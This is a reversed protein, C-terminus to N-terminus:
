SKQSPNILRQSLLRRLPIDYVKDVIWAGVILIVLFVIGSWPAFSELAIKNKRAISDILFFIPLHAVYVTYSIAGLFKFVRKAVGDVEVHIALYILCPFVLVACMFDYFPIMKDPTPFVLAIGILGVIIWSFFTNGKGYSIPFKGSTYLRYLLVGAFFSYGSRLLGIGLTKTTFGINLNHGPLFYLCMAMGIASPIMILVLVWNKMVRIAFAYFVNTLLEALLSWAPSNLPYIFAPRVIFPNPIFFAATAMLWISDHISYDEGVGCMISLFSVLMGAIYLPYLRILRMIFFTKLTLRSDLLRKEYSNAIVVGSIVFFIDVALYNHYKPQLGFLPLTHWLAVLITAIGRIGEV